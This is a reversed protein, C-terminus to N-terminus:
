LDFLAQLYADRIEKLSCRRYSSGSPRCRQNNLSTERVTTDWTPKSEALPEQSDALLLDEFRDTVPRPYYKAPERGPGLPSRM